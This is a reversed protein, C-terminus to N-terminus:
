LLVTLVNFVSHVIISAWLSKTKEFIYGLWLGIILLMIIQLYDGVIVKQIHILSFLISTIINAKLFGFRQKFAQLYFGRFPIEEFIGAMFVGPILYTKQSSFDIIFSNKALFILTIFVSILIGKKIGNFSNERLKLYSLPNEKFIKFVYIFVPMIFIFLYFSLNVIFAYESNTYKNMIIMILTALGLQILIFIFTMKSLKTDIIM